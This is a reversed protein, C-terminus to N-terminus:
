LRYCGRDHRRGSFPSLVVTFLTQPPICVWVSCCLKLVSTRSGLGVGDQYKVSYQEVTLLYSSVLHVDNSWTTSSLLTTNELGLDRSELILTEPGQHCPRPRPRSNKLGKLGVTAM